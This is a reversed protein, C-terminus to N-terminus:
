KTGWINHYKSIAKNWTFEKLARTKMRQGLENATDPSNLFFILKKSLTIYDESPVLIGTENNIIVEPIGGVKTAIIPKSFYGAEVLSIGFAENRSPFSFIFCNKLVHMADPHSLDYLCTIKNELHLSTILETTKKSYETNRGAIVLHIDPFQVTIQNFAKILLDHGKISSYTGLTLIYKQPLPQITSPSDISKEIQEPNIGNYICHFINKNISPLQAIAKNRLQNSCCVIENSFKLMKTLNKHFAGKSNAFEQIDTGHFSSVVKCKAFHAALYLSYFSNVPYHTNVVKINFKRKLKIFSIFFFPFWLFFKLLTVFNSRESSVRPRLQINVYVIGNKVQTKPFFNGWSPVLVVPQYSHEEENLERILNTVVQNVGGTKDLKWPVAFLIGQKM